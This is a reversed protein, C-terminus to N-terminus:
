GCSGIVPDDLVVFRELEDVLEEARAQVELRGATEAAAAAHPHERRKRLM